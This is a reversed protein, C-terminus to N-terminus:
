WWWMEVYRAGVLAVVFKLEVWMQAVVGRRGVGLEDAFSGEKFVERAVYKGCSHQYGGQNVGPVSELELVPLRVMSQCCVDTRSSAKIEVLVPLRLMLQCFVDTISLACADGNM